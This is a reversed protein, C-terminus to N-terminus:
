FPECICSAMLAFLFPDVRLTPRSAPVPCNIGTFVAWLRGFVETTSVMLVGFFFYHVEKMLLELDPRFVGHSDFEVLLCVDPEHIRRVVHSVFASAGMPVETPMGHLRGDHKARRVASRPVEHDIESSISAGDSSGGGQDSM